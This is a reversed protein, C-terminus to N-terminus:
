VTFGPPKPMGELHGLTALEGHIRNVDEPDITVKKLPVKIRKLDSALPSIFDLDKVRSQLVHAMESVTSASTAAQLREAMERHSELSGKKSELEKKGNKVQSKADTNAAKALDKLRKRCAKVSRELGDCVADIEAWEAKTEKDIESVYHDLSTMAKTLTKEGETFMGIMKGLMPHAEKYKKDLKVVIGQCDHHADGLCETCVAEGHTPCFRDLKQGIHKSCTSTRFAVMRDPTMTELPENVHERAGSMHTHVYTCRDCYLDGCSMCITSAPMKAGCVRCIRRMNLNRASEVLVTLHTDTPFSSAIDDPTKSARLAPDVIQIGCKPCKVDNELWSMLCERCSFHACPLLKPEVLDGRCIACEM